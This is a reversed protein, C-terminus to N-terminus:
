RTSYMAAHIDATVLPRVGFFSISARSLTAISCDRIEIVSMPDSSPTESPLAESEALSFEVGKCLPLEFGEGFSVALLPVLPSEAGAQDGTRVEVGVPRAFGRRDNLWHIKPLLAGSAAIGIHPDPNREFM